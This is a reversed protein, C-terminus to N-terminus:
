AVLVVFALKGKIKNKSPDADFFGTQEQHFIFGRSFSVSQTPAPLIVVSFSLSQLCDPKNSVQYRLSRSFSFTWSLSSRLNQSPHRKMDAYPTATIKLSDDLEFLRKEFHFIPHFHNFAFKSM